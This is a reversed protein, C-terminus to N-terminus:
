VCQRFLSKRKGSLGKCECEFGGVKKLQKQSDIFDLAKTVDGGSMQLARKASKMSHGMEQLLALSEDSM